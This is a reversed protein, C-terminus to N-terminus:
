KENTQLVGRERRDFERKKKILFKYFELGEVETDHYVYMPKEVNRLFIEIGHQYEMGCGGVPRIINVGVIAATDLGCTKGTIWM